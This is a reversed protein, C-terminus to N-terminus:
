MEDKLANIKEVLARGDTGTQENLKYWNDYVPKVNEESFLEDLVEQPPEYLTMGESVLKDINRQSFGEHAAFHEDEIARFETQVVEKLDDPLEEWKQTNVVFSWPVVIGVQWLGLDKAVTPFGMGSATGVSTMVVDVVGRQLAPVIEAFNVPTPAAGLQSMLSAAETNHVRVKKGKFDSVQRLEDRSIICQTEFVGTALQVSNYKDRWVSAMEERLLPDLMQYYQEIDTLLGPLHGFNMYPAEASLWPSVAFSGDLRGDRVAAPQDPGPVLTDYLEIKLRGDTAAAIREPVTELTAVYSSGTARVFGISWTFEQSQVPQAFAFTTSVMCAALTWHKM